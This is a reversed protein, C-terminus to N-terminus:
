TVQKSKPFVQFKVEQRRVDWGSSLNIPKNTQKNGSQGLFFTNPWPLLFFSDMWSPVAKHPNSPWRNAKLRLLGYRIEQKSCYSQALHRHRQVTGWQIGGCQSGWSQLNVWGPGLSESGQRYSVTWGRKMTLVGSQHKRTCLRQWGGAKPDMLSVGYWVGEMLAYSRFFICM